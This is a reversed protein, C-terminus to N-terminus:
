DPITQLVGTTHSRYEKPFLIFKSSHPILLFLTETPLLEFNAVHFVRHNMKIEQCVRLKNIM